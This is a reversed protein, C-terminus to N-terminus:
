FIDTALYRRVKLSTYMEGYPHNALLTNHSLLVQLVDGVAEATIGTALLKLSLKGQKPVQM